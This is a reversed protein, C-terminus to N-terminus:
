DQSTLILCDKMIQEFFEDRNVNTYTSDKEEMHYANEYLEYKVTSEDMWTYSDTFNWTSYSYKWVNDAKKFDCAAQPDKQSSDRKGDDNQVLRTEWAPESSSSNDCGIFGVALALLALLLTCNKKM